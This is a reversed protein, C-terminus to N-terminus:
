IRMMNYHINIALSLIHIDLQLVQWEPIEGQPMVIADHIMVDKSIQNLAEEAQKKLSALPEASTLSPYHNIKFRFLIWDLSAIEKKGLKFALLCFNYYAILLRNVTSPHLRSLNFSANQNEESNEVSNVQNLTLGISKSEEPNKGDTDIAISKSILAQRDNFRQNQASINEAIKRAKAFMNMAMEYEQRCQYTAAMNNVADYHMLLYRDVGFSTKTFLMSTAGCFCETILHGRFMFSSQCSPTTKKVNGPALALHKSTSPSFFRNESQEHFKRAEDFLESLFHLKQLAESSKASCLLAEATLLIATPDPHGTEWHKSQGDICANSASNQITGNTSSIGQNSKIGYLHLLRAPDQMSLYIRAKENRICSKTLFPSCDLIAHEISTQQHTDHSLPSANSGSVLRKEIKELEQIAKENQGKNSYCSVLRWSVLLSTLPTTLMCTSIPNQESDEERAELHPLLIELMRMETDYIKQHHYLRSLNYLAPLFSSDAAASQKFSTHSKSLNGQWKEIVGIYNWVIALQFKSTVLQHLIQLASVFDSRNQALQQAYQLAACCRAIHSTIHSRNLLNNPESSALCLKSLHISTIEILHRSRLLCGMKEASLSSRFSELHSEVDQHLTSLASIAFSLKEGKEFEPLVQNANAPMFQGGYSTNSSAVPLHPLSSFFFIFNECLHYEITLLRKLQSISPGGLMSDNSLSSFAGSDCSLVLLRISDLLKSLQTPLANVMTKGRLTSGMANSNGNLHPQPNAPPSSLEMSSTENQPTGNPSTSKMLAVVDRIARKQADKFSSSSTQSSNSSSQMTKRTIAERQALESMGVAKSSSIVLCTTAHVFHHRLSAPNSTKANGLMYALHCGFQLHHLNLQLILSEFQLNLLTYYAPSTRFTPNLSVAEKQKEIRSEYSIVTKFDLGEVQELEKLVAQLLADMELALDVHSTNKESQNPVVLSTLQRYRLLLGQYGSIRALLEYSLRQCGPSIMKSKSEFNTKQAEGTDGISTKDGKKPTIPRKSSSSPEAFSISPTQLALLTMEQSIPSFDDTPAGSIMMSKMVASMWNLTIM